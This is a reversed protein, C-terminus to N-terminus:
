FYQHERPEATVRNNVSGRLKVSDDDPLIEIHTVEKGQRDRLNVRINVICHETEIHLIDDSRNTNYFSIRRAM